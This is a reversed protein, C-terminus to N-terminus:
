GLHGLQYLNPATYKGRDTVTTRRCINYIRAPYIYQSEINEANVIMRLTNTKKKKMEVLINSKSGALDNFYVIKSQCLILLMMM